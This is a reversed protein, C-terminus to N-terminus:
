AYLIWKLLMFGRDKRSVGQLMKQANPTLNPTLTAILDDLNRFRPDNFPEGITDMWLLMHWIERADFLGMLENEVWINIARRDSQDLNDAYWLAIKFYAEQELRKVREDVDLALISFRKSSELSQLLAAFLSATQQLRNCDEDQNCTQLTAIYKRKDDAELRNFDDVRLHLLEKDKADLRGLWQEVTSPDKPPPPLTSRSLDTQALLDLMPFSTLRRPVDLDPFSKLTPLVASTAIETLQAKERHLRHMYGGVIGGGLLTIVLPVAVAIHLMGDTLKDTIGKMTWGRSPQSGEESIVKAIMKMTTTTFDRSVTIEPWADLLDWTRRLERLELRLAEDDVLRRELAARESANLENDLYATLLETDSNVDVDDRM